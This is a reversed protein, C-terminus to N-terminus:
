ARFRSLSCLMAALITAQLTSQGQIIYQDNGTIAVTAANSDKYSFDTFIPNAQGSGNAITITRDRYDYVTTGSITSQIGIRITATATNPMKSQILERSTTNVAFNHRSGAGSNNFVRGGVISGGVIIEVFATVNLGAPNSFEVWLASEDTAPIGGQDVSFATLSAWRAITPLAWSGSGSANTAATYIAANGNSSFSKTGDSNHGVNIEGNAFQGGWTQASGRALVQAGNIWINCSYVQYWAGTSWTAVARWGLRSYNGSTSQSIVWWEVRITGYPSTMNYSGSSAM